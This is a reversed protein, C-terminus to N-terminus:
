RPKLEWFPEYAFPVDIWTKGDVNSKFFSYPRGSAKVLARTEPSAKVYLDSEHHGIEDAAGRGEKLGIRKLQKYLSLTGAAKGSRRRSRRSRRSTRKKSAM